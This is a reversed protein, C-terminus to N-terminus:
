ESYQEGTWEYDKHFLFIKNMCLGGNVKIPRFDYIYHLEEGFNVKPHIDTLVARKYQHHGDIINVIEGIKHPALEALAHYNMNVQARIKDITRDGKKIAEVLKRQEQTMEKVQEM